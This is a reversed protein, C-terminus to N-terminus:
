INVMRLAVNARNAATGQQTLNSLGITAFNTTGSYLGMGYFWGISSATNAGPEHASFVGHIASGVGMMSITNGLSTTAAGTLGTARTSVAVGMWYKDASMNVNLPASLFFAGTASGTANSSWTWQNNTTASAVSSLTGGNLTYAVATISYLVGGSSANAATGVSVSGVLDFRSASLNHDFPCYIVSATGNIPAGVTTLNDNPRWFVSETVDAWAVRLTHSGNNSTIQSLTVGSGELWYTGQVSGTTGATSGGTSIGIAGLGAHVHDEAAWRGATGVSNASGVMAVTTATGITSYTSVTATVTSGSLGFSVGNSNSFVVSGLNGSTTGASM